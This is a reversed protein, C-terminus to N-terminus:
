KTGNLKRLTQRIYSGAPTLIAEPWKADVSAGPKLLATTEEKDTVNWNVWSLRNREMWGLWKEAKELNFEGNGNAEGVGWETVFLPLRSRIAEDAKAMLKEQHSPESAYFHFSYAINNFGQIPDKSVIDVDQDWTPSGVVILNNRDHKRIAEIVRVAYDKVVSWDIREPENFVEYIVNPCGKYRQAMKTFFVEAQEPHLQAHHDHWDIIVYIGKKVAADVVTTVLAMQGDPDHLYGRDPEIAMSLRLLNIKFDEALWNVVAENYYKRGEWISWSLSIGRLQPADGTHDVVRGGAVKLQGHQKVAAKTQGLGKGAILCLLFFAMLYRM